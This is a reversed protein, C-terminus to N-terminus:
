HGPWIMLLPIVRLFKGGRNKGKQHNRDDRDLLAYFASTDVFIRM